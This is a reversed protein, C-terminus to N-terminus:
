SRLSLKKSGLTYIARVIGWLIYLTILSAFGEVPYLYMLSAFSILTILIKTLMNKKLNIKKFSPYRINSVMLLSVFFTGILLMWNYENLLEYRQFMLIWVSVFIAATPIPVGIFVTPDVNPSIVNFRALRIAGFIIFLAMVLTGLKGYAYGTYFYLLIAPAVGFAVIDALSDFEVGFKSTTHTLRAIRGDLGDFVLSLFILWASKEFDRDVAATIAIVATFISAATFLNPLLYIIQFNRSTMKDM